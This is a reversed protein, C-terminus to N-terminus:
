GPGQFGLPDAPFMVMDSDPFTPMLLRKEIVERYENKEKILLFMEISSIFM